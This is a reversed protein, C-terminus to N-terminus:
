WDRTVPVERNGQRVKDKYLQREDNEAASLIRDAQAQSMQSRPSQNQQNGQGQPNQNQKGGGGGGGKKQQAGGGMGSQKKDKLALELNWKADGDKPDIRLAEQYAKVAGDLLAKRDPSAAENPSGAGAAGAAGAANGAAGVAAGNPGAAGAAGAAAQGR